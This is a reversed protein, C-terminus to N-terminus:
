QTFVARVALLFRPDSPSWAAVAGGGHRFCCPGPLPPSSPVPRPTWVLGVACPCRVHSATRAVGQPLAEPPPSRSEPRSAPTKLNFSSGGAASEGERDPSRQAVRCRRWWAAGRELTEKELVAKIRRINRRIFSCREKMGLGCERSEGPVRRGGVALGPSGTVRRERRRPVRPRGRPLVAITSRGGLRPAAPM